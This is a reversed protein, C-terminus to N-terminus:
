HGNELLYLYPQEPFYKPMLVEIYDSIFSSQTTFMRINFSNNQFANCHYCGNSIRPTPSHEDLRYDLLGFGFRNRFEPMNIAQLHEKPLEYLDFLRLQVPQGNHLLSYAIKQIINTKQHCHFCTQTCLQLNLLYKKDPVGFVHIQRGFLNQIFATIEMRVSSFTSSFKLAPKYINLVNFKKEAGDYRFVFTPVGHKSLADQAIYPMGKSPTTFVFWASKIGSELYQQQRLLVNDDPNDQWVVEFIFKTNQKEAYIDAVWNVGNPTCGHKDHQVTWGMKVLERSILYKFYQQERPQSCKAYPCNSLSKHAFFRTGLQNQKPIYDSSCCPSILQQNKYSDKLNLWDEDSFEFSYIAKSNLVCKFGM